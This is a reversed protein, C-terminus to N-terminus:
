SHALNLFGVTTKVSSLILVEKIDLTKLLTKIPQDHHHVSTFMISPFSLISSGCNEDLSQLFVSDELFTDKMMVLPPIQILENIEM